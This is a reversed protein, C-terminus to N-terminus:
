WKNFVFFAAGVLLVAAVLHNWKLMEGGVTIAFVAFVALTIVEQITKLEAMSFGQRYGIRNAPVMFCYEFLAILWSMVIATLLPWHGKKRHGYWAFTMFVNSITLLLITTM